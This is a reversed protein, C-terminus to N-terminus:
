FALILIVANQSLSEFTLATINKLALGDRPQLLRDEVEFAGQVVFVYASEFPTLTLTCERRGEFAGIFSQIVTSTQQATFAMLANKNVDLDFACIETANGAMMNGEITLWIFNISQTKYPNKIVVSTDPAVSFWAANGIELLVNDNGERQFELGGVIPLLLILAHKDCNIISQGDGKLLHDNLASLIKFPERNNDGQHAFTHATELSGAVRPVRKEALHIVAEM